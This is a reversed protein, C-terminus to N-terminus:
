CQIGIIKLCKLGQKILWLDITNRHLKQDKQICNIESSLVFFKLLVQFNILFFGSSFRTAKAYKQQKRNIIPEVDGANGVDGPIVRLQYTYSGDNFNSGFIESLGIYPTSGSEITKTFVSGDPRSVTLVLQRYNMKPAWTIGSSGIIEEAVPKNDFEKASSGATGIFCVVLFMLVFTALSKKRNM